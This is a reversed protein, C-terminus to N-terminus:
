YSNWFHLQSIRSDSVNQKLGRFYAGSVTQQNNQPLVSYNKPNEGPQDACTQGSLWLEFDNKVQYSLSSNCKWHIILNNKEDRKQDFFHDM